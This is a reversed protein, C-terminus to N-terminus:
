LSKSNRGFRLSPNGNFGNRFFLERCTHERGTKCQDCHGCSVAPDIAIRQNPKVRKVKSGTREVIGACEHGITFPYPVIQSGIRGETYYHIDSGCVGITKIRILVDTDNVIEPTSVQRIEFQKIGTLVAARM